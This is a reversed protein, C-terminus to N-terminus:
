EGVWGRLWVGVAYALGAAAGGVLLTELGSKLLSHRLIHGKLLGITLFTLGTLLSSTWFIRELPFEPVLYPLLPVLGAVAFGLFTALAAMWAKPLELKLGLEETLMTDVWLKHNQTIVEVIRELEEGSFGKAAFIQRVEEREGEPVLHIHMEEIARAKELLGRESKARQYNSAAMSFGDAILNALGLIIAVSAPLSAGAAGAVVAFTTVCGDIAGLVADGLYSHERAGALRAAIAEVQHQAALATRDPM